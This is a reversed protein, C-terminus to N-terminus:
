MLPYTGPTLSFPPCYVCAAIQATIPDYIGCPVDCHASAHRFHVLRDITSLVTHIM